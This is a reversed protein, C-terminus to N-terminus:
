FIRLRNYSGSAAGPKKCFVCITQKTDAVENQFVIEKVQSVSRNVFSFRVQLRTKGVVSKKNTISKAFKICFQHAQIQSSLGGLYTLNNNGVKTCLLCKLGSQPQPAGPLM